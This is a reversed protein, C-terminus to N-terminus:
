SVLGGAAYTEGGGLLDIHDNPGGVYPNNFLITDSNANGQENTTMTGISIFGCALVHTPGCTLYITFTTNPAANKLAVVAREGDATSNYNIFGYGTPGAFDVVGGASGGDQFLDLKQNPSASAVSVFVGLAAIAAVAVLMRRLASHKRLM